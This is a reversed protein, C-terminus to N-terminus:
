SRFHLDTLAQKIFALFSKKDYIYEKNIDKYRQPKERKSIKDNQVLPVKTMQKRRRRLNRMLKQDFLQAVLSRDASNIHSEPEDMSLLIATQPDDREWTDM